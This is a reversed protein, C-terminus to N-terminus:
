GDKRKGWCCFDDDFVYSVFGGAARDMRMCSHIIGDYYSCDKCRVVAKQEPVYWHDVIPEGDYKHASLYGDERVLIREPLEKFGFRVGEVHYSM